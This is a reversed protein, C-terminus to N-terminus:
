AGASKCVRIASNASANYTIGLEDTRIVVVWGCPKRTANTLAEGDRREGGPAPLCMM